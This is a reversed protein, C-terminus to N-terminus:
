QGGLIREYTRGLLESLKGLDALGDEAADGLPDGVAVVAIPLGRVLIPAVAPTAANGLARKLGEQAPGSAAEISPKKSSVARQVTSPQGLRVTVTEPLKVNHGRYGVAQGDRVAMVLGATWRSAVFAIAVDSAAERSTARELSAKTVEFPLPGSPNTKARPLIFQGSQTPDKDVRVDDLDTLALRVSDPDLADMDPPPPAVEVSSSFDVDFEDHPTAGYAEDLLSELRQAPAIVLLIETKAAAELAALLAPAPDRAAVILAGGSTRGLPLACSERGLAAPILKALESDRGALHKALAAPVGRQEGLARAADDFDVLGRAILLSCLRRDPPQEALVRDLDARRLKRHEVLLEGIRMAM